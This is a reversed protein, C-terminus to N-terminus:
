NTHMKYNKEQPHMLHCLVSQLAVTSNGYFLRKILSFCCRCFFYIYNPIDTKTLLEADM